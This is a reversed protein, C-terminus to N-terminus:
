SLHVVKDSEMDETNVRLTPLGSHRGLFRDSPSSSRQQTHGHHAIDRSTMTSSNVNNSLSQKVGHPIQAMEMPSSYTSIFSDGSTKLNNYEKQYSATALSTPFTPAQQTECDLSSSNSQKSIMSQRDALLINDSRYNSNVTSTSSLRSHITTSFSTSSSITQSSTISSLSSTSDSFKHVPPLAKRKDAGSEDHQQNLENELSEKHISQQQPSRALSSPLHIPLSYGGADWPTRCRSPVRSVPGSSDTHKLQEAPATNSNLM